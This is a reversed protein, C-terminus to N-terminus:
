RDKFSFNSGSLNRADIWPSDKEFMRDIGAVSLIPEQDNQEDDFTKQSMDTNFQLLLVNYITKYM